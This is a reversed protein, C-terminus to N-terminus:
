RGIICMGQQSLCKLDSMLVKSQVFEDHLQGCVALIKDVLADMDIGFFDGYGPILIASTNCAPITKGVNSILDLIFYQRVISRRLDTIQLFNNKSIIIAKDISDQIAANIEGLKYKQKRLLEM